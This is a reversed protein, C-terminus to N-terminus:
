SGPGEVEWEAQVSFAQFCVKIDANVQVQYEVTKM